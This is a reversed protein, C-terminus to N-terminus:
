LDQYLLQNYNIIVIIQGFTSAYLIPGLNLSKSDILSTGPPIPLGLRSIECLISADSGLISIDVSCGEKFTLVRKDFATSARLFRTFSQLKDFIFQFM